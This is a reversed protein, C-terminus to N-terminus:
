GCLVSHIRNQEDLTITLRDASFEMTVAHGYPVWRLIRVGAEALMQRGLEATAMEGIHLALGTERCM